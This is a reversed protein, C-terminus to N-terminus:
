TQFARTGSSLSILTSNTAGVGLAVGVGVGVGEAVGVGLGDGVAFVAMDTLLFFFTILVTM